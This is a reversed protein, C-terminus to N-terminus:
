IIQPFKLSLNHVHRTNIFYTVKRLLDIKSTRYSLSRKSDAIKIIMPYRSLTRHAIAIVEVNFNFKM